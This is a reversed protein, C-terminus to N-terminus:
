KVLALVAAKAAAFDASYRELDAETLGVTNTGGGTASKTAIVGDLAAHYIAQYKALAENVKAAEANLATQKQRWAAPDTAKLALAEKERLAFARYYGKLAADITLNGVTVSQLAAREPSTQCGPTAFGLVLGTALLAVAALTGPNRPAAVKSLIKATVDPKIGAFWDALYSLLSFWVSGEIRALWARSAENHTDEAWGHLWTMVPKIGRLVGLLLVFPVLHLRQLYPLLLATVADQVAPPAALVHIAPVETVNPPSVPVLGPPAPPPADLGFVPPRCAFVAAFIALFFLASKFRRGVFPTFRM